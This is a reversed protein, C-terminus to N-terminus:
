EIRQNKLSPNHFSFVTLEYSLSMETFLVVRLFGSNSSAVVKSLRKKKIKKESPKILKPLFFFFYQVSHCTHPGCVAHFINLSSLHTIIGFPYPIKLSSHHTILSSYRTILSSHHFNLSSFFADM